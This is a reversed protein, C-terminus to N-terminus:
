RMVTKSRCEEPLTQSWPLLEDLFSLNKDEMHEPIVTLLYKLYLYPNLQNAKATETISYIIASAKAGDITDILKWNNKGICFGRLAGETANNDLPVDADELFVKLYQEQNICYSLGDATKSKPPVTVDQQQKMVWAFFAEVLPKLILQRQSLREKVPLESLENDLKYIAAIQRLAEYAVTGHANTKDKLAKIADAFRRRAHAWCGAFQIHDNEKDLKHYASFGDCVVVGEFDKLFEKPHDSNRTRQYEYLVIPTELYMKGTRYVWMYSKSGAPRGDKTVKVPTEDAQLVHFRYMEQHMRDYILSLYRESCQIVWNAMVQRAIKIDNRKFEQEIRYLPLANVYKANMVAAVLSPTAISNRLVDAPRDARVITQNDNGAYVHVHHEEVTYVAPTYRLRKYVEEPLEKWSAGFIKRLKETPLEHPVVEVPLGLLDADRKGKQKKPKQPKCVDNLFPEPVYLNEVLAEAENFLNLQGDIVDLKETSRGFRHNNAVAVQEILREMNQNLQKMQDQMSLFLIVLSEKSLNNLEEEKYERGM